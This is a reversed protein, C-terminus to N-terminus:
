CGCHDFVFKSVDEENRAGVIMKTEVIVASELRSIFENTRTGIEARGAAM